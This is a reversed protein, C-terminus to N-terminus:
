ASSEGKLDAKKRRSPSILRPFAYWFVVVRGVGGDEGGLEVARGDVGFQMSVPRDTYMTFMGPVPCLRLLHRGLPLEELILTM